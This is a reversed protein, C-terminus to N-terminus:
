THSLCQLLVEEGRKAQTKCGSSLQILTFWNQCPVEIFTSDFLADDWCNRKKMKIKKKMLRVKRKEVFQLNKLIRRLTPASLLFRLLESGLICLPQLLVHERSRGPCLPLRCKTFGAAFARSGLTVIGVFRFSPHCMFVPLHTQSIETRSTVKEDPELYLKRSEHDRCIKIKYFFFKSLKSNREKM